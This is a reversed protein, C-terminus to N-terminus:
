TRISPRTTYAKKMEAHLKKEHATMKKKSQDAGAQATKNAMRKSIASQKELMHSTYSKETKFFKLDLEPSMKAVLKWADLTKQALEINRENKSQTFKLKNLYGAHGGNFAQNLVLAQEDFDKVSQFLEKYTYDVMDQAKSNRPYLSVEYKSVYNHIYALCEALVEVKMEPLPEVRNEENAGEETWTNSSGKSEYTEGFAEEVISKEDSVAGM